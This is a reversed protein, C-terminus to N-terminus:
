IIEMYKYKDRAIMYLIILLIVDYSVLFILSYSDDIVQTVNNYFYEIENVYPIKIIKSELNFSFTPLLSYNSWNMVIAFNELIDSLLWGVLGIVLTLINKKVYLNICILAMAAGICKFYLLLFKILYFLNCHMEFGYGFYSMGKVGFMVDNFVIFVFYWITILIFLVVNMLLIKSSFIQTRLYPFSYTDKVLGAIVRPDKRDNKSPSNDDLEKTKHLHHPNVMVFKIDKEGMFQGLDLWYHGTPEIGVMAEELKNEKMLEVITNYFSNFGEMSNLFSVPKRTLEIGRWNFARFYHKESGVDIGVIMTTEKVQEIKKNQTSNM